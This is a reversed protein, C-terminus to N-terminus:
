DGTSYHALSACHDVRSLTLLRNFIILHVVTGDKVRSWSRFEGVLDNAGSVFNIKYIPSPDSRAMM